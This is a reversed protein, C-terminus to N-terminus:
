SCRYSRTMLPGQRTAGPSKCKQYGHSVCWLIHCDRGAWRFLGKWCGTWAGKEEQVYALGRQRYHLGLEWTGALGQGKGLLLFWLNWLTTIKYGTGAAFVWWLQLIHGRRGNPWWLWTILPYAWEWQANSVAVNESNGWTPMAISFAQAGGM